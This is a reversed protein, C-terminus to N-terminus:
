QEAVDKASIEEHVCDAFKRFLQRSVTQFMGGGLQALRGSISVEAEVTVETTSEGSSVLKFDVHAEARGAAGQQTGRAVLTMKHAEPDKEEIHVTGDFQARVPGVQLGIKGQYTNDDVVKDLEAGPLCPVVRPPDEFYAWAEEVPVDVEFQEKVTIAM